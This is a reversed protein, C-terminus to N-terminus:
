IKDRIIEKKVKKCVIEAIDFHLQEHELLILRNKSKTWSKKPIFQAVIIFKIM